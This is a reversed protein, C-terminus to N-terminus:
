NVQVIASRWLRAQYYEQLVGKIQDKDDVDCLLDCLAYADEM